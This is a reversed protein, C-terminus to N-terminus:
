NDNNKEKIYENIFNTIFTEDDVSLTESSQNELNKADIQLMYPIISAIAKLNGKVASNILQTLMAIKKSIKLAKGDQNITIKQELIEEILKFTNKSGRPRGSPNGSVGKPFQSEQPPNKYGTM